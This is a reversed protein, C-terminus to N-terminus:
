RTRDTQILIPRIEKPTTREMIRAETHDTTEQTSPKRIMMRKSLSIAYIIFAFIYEGKQRKTSKIEWGRMYRIVWVKKGERISLERARTIKEMATSMAAKAM